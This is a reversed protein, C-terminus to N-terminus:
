VKRILQAFKGQLEAQQTSPPAGPDQSKGSHGPSPKPLKSQVGYKECIGHYFVEERGRYKELLADINELKLPNHEKYIEVVLPRIVALKEQRAKEEEESLPALRSKTKKIDPVKPEIKYKSCIALYLTKEKGAYKQLITDIENLKEKNHDQYVQTILEKYKEVVAKADNTVADQTQGKSASVADSKPLKPEVKYKDCIGRYVLEERGKYKTLLSDVDDLKTPNHEKYVEIILEKIKAAHEAAEASSAKTDAAGPAAATGNSAGGSGPLDQSVPVKYKECIGLYL